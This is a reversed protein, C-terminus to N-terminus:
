HLSVLWSLENSVSLPYLSFFRITVAPKHDELAHRRTFQCISVTDINRLYWRSRIWFLLATCVLKNRLFMKNSSSGDDPYTKRYIFVLTELSGNTTYYMYIYVRWFCTTQIIYIYIYIYIYINADFALLKSFGVNCAVRKARGRGHESM